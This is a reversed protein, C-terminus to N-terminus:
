LKVQHPKRARMAYGPGIEWDSNVGSRDLEQAGIGRSWGGSVRSHHEMSGAWYPWNISSAVMLEEGVGAALWPLLVVGFSRAARGLEARAARAGRLVPLGCCM